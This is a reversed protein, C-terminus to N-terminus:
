LIERLPVVRSEQESLEAAFVLKMTNLSDEASIQPPKGVAIMQLVETIQGYVNHMWVSDEEPSYTITEVLKSQLKDPADTFEWRRLRRRFVDTQIAGRTGYLLFSLQHGDDAQESIVNNRLPDGDFTEATGMFFTLSSVSGGDFRCLIQHNDPHNFYPVFKPASVSYLDAVEAGFWWRPLDLYHCLKEGILGKDSRSRWSDRLHFESCFYDCHSNLPRGILGADIWGKTTRYLKSYRLEFGIQLFGGTEKQAELMQRAEAATTGMPKECLVAKGARLAAVALDCHTANPSAISVFRIEPDGWISNLDSTSEIGLEAGRDRARQADPEFGVVRSVFPSDKAARVHTAGMEGIGLVAVPFKRDEKV